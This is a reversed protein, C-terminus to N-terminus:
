AAGVEANYEAVDKAIEEDALRLSAALKERAELKATIKNKFTGAKKSTQEGKIEALIQEATKPKGGKPKNGNPLDTVNDDSM